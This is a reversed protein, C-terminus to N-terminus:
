KEYAYLSGFGAIWAFVLMNAPVYLNFDVASHAALALIGASCGILLFRRDMRRQFWAQTVIPWIIGATAAILPLFGVIGLEILYQLYDNHAFDIRRANAM